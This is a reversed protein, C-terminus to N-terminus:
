YISEFEERSTSCVPCTGKKWDEEPDAILVYGCKLCVHYPHDGGHVNLNNFHKLFLTIHAKESAIVTRFFRSAQINGAAKAEQEMQQYSEHRANVEAEIRASLKEILDAM